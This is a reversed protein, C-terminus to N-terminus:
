DKYCYKHNLHQNEGKEELSRWCGWGPSSHWGAPMVLHHLCDVLELVTRRGAHLFVAELEQGQARRRPTLVTVIATRKASAWSTLPSSTQTLILVFSLQTERHWQVLWAKGHLCMKFPNSLKWPTFKEWSSVTNWYINRTQKVIKTGPLLVTLVPTAYGTWQAASSDQARNTLWRTPCWSLM